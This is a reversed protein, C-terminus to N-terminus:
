QVPKRYGERIYPSINATHKHVIESKGNLAKRPDLTQQQDLTRKLLGPDLEEIGVVLRNRAIVNFRDFLDCVSYTEGM